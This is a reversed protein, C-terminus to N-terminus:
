LTKGHVNRVPERARTVRVTRRDALAGLHDAGIAREGLADGAERARQAALETQLGAVADGDDGLVRGVIEIDHVADPMGAERGHGGIGLQVPELEGVDELV